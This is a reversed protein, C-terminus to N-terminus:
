TQLAELPHAQLIWFPDELYKHQPAWTMGPFFTGGEWGTERMMEVLKMGIGLFGLLPVEEEPPFAQVWVDSQLRVGDCDGASREPKMWDPQKPKVLGVPVTFFGSGFESVWGADVEKLPYDQGQIVQSSMKPGFM